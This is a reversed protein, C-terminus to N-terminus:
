PCVYPFLYIIYKVPLQKSLKDKLLELHVGKGTNSTTQTCCQIFWNLFVVINLYECKVMKRYFSVIFICLM